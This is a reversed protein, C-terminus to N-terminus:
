SPIQIMMQPAYYDHLSINWKLKELPTFYMLPFSQSYHYRVHASSPSHSSEREATSLKAGNQLHNFWICLSEICNWLQLLSILIQTGAGCFGLSNATTYVLLSYTRPCIQGVTTKIFLTKNSSLWVLENVYQGHCKLVGLM